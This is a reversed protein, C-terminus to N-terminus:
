HSKQTDHLSPLHVTGLRHPNEDYFSEWNYRDKPISTRASVGNMLMKWFAQTSTADQPFKLSLGIIAVPELLDADYDGELEANMNNQNTPIDM